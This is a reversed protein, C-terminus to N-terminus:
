PRIIPSKFEAKRRAIRRARAELWRVVFYLCLMQGTIAWFVGYLFLWGNIEIM